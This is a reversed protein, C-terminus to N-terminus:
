SCCTSQAGSGGPRRAKSNSEVSTPWRRRAASRPSVAKTGTSSLPCARPRRAPRRPDGARRLPRGAEGCAGPRARAPGGLSDVCLHRRDRFIDACGPVRLDPGVVIRGARDAKAGLWRAAASAEVGAAWLVSRTAIFGSNTTVGTADIMTAREDLLVEVGLRRLAAAAERSLDEPFSPLLRSASQVLVVRSTTPDISRFDGSLGTRALEAIAGALEVGTPGGGVM